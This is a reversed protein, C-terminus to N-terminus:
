RMGKQRHEARQVAIGRLAEAYAMVDAVHVVTRRGIKCAPLEGAAILEYVKTRGCGLLGSARMVDVFVEDM